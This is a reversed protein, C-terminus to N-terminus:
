LAHGTTKGCVSHAQLHGKAIEEARRYEALQRQIDAGKQVASHQLDARAKRLTGSYSTADIDRMRKEIESRVEEDLGRVNFAGTKFAGLVQKAQDRRDTLRRVVEEYAMIKRELNEKAELALALRGQNAQADETL